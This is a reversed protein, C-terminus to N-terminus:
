LYSTTARMSRVNQTDPSWYYVPVQTHTLQRYTGHLVTCSLLPIRPLASIVLTRLPTLSDERVLLRIPALTQLLHSLSGCRESLLTNWILAFARPRLM